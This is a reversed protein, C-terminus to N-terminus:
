DDLLATMTLRPTAILLHFCARTCTMTFYHFIHYRDVVKQLADLDLDGVVVQEGDTVFSQALSWAAEADRGPSFRVAAPM